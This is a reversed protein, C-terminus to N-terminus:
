HSSLRGVVVGSNPRGGSALASALLQGDKGTVHFRTPYSGFPTESPPEVFM